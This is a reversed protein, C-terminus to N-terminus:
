SVFCNRMSYIPRYSSNGLFFLKYSWQIDGGYLTTKGRAKGVKKYSRINEDKNKNKNATPVILWTFSKMNESFITM